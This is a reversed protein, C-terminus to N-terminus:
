TQESSASGKRVVDYKIETEATSDGVHYKFVIHREIDGKMSYEESVKAILRKGRKVPPEKM